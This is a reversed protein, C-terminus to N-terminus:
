AASRRLVGVRSAIAGLGASLALILVIVGVVPILELVAIVLIGCLLLGIRWWASNGTNKGARTVIKEGVALAAVYYSAVLAIVYVAAVVLALPVGVITAGVLAVAVPTAVLIGFGVALLRLHGRGILAAAELSLRPLAWVQLIGLLVFGLVILLITGGVIAHAMGRLSQVETSSVFVTDGEITADPHIEIEHPSYYELNGGIRAGPLLEIHEARILADGLVNAGVRVNRGSVKLNGGTKGGVMVDYGTLWLNSKVVASDHVRIWGGAAMVDDGVRARIDIRGAAIRVSGDINGDVFVTGGTSLVDGTTSGSIDVHAGSGVVDGDVSANITVKRGMVVVNEDISGRIAVFDGVDQALALAGWAAAAIGLAATAVIAETRAIM